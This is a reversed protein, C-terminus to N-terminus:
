HPGQVARAAILWSMSQAAGCLASSAMFLGIGFFLLPKRGTLDQRSLIGDSVKKRRKEKARTEAFNCKCLTRGLLSEDSGVDVHVGIWGM